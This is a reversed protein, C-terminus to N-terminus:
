NKLLRFGDETSATALKDAMHNGYWIYWGETGKKDPERQHSRVHEFKIDHEQYLTHLEKILDLHLIPRDRKGVKRKWNNKKWTNSWNTICNISYMSDTRVVLGDYLESDKMEIHSKIATLCAQLEMRQNTSNSDTYAKSIVRNTAEFYIGIGGCRRNNRMSSSGDAYVVSSRKNDATVMM